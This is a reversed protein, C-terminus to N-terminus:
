AVMLSSQTEISKGTRSDYLMLDKYSTEKLVTKELIVWTTAHTLEKNKKNSFLVGNHPHTVTQKDTSPCKFQKRRRAVM